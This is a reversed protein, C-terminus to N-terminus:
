MLELAKKYEAWQGVDIWAEDDIPYVGVKKGCKRAKKILDTFNYFKQKPILELLEPNLIYLGTNIM